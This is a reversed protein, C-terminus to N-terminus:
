EGPLSQELFEVFEPDMESRAAEWTAQSMPVSSRIQAFSRRLREREDPLESYQWEMISFIRGIQTQVMAQDTRSLQKGQLLEDM